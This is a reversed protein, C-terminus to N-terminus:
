RPQNIINVLATAWDSWDQFVNPDPFPIGDSAFLTIGNMGNAWQRWDTSANPIELQQAEFAEVMLSAWSEFTHYRPDYILAIPM